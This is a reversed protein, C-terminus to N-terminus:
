APEFRVHEDPGAGSLLMFTTDAIGDNRFWRTRGPPNLIMDHQGLRQAVTDGGEAWGATLAGDLVFYADEVAREYGRVAIGRPLHIMEMRYAGPPAGTGGVYDLRAVAAEWTPPQEAHRLIHRAFERQRPDASTPDFPITRGPAAGFCHAREPDGDRPHCTYVPPKPSGSGVSISMLVPGVGDNRFGHPRGSRNLVMDYRGLRAEIVDAGFAWGVTLVGELVLFHEVVEHSHCAAYKGVPQHVLSLTFAGPKLTDPDDVKPSGGAGIYRMQARALEPFGANGPFADWDFSKEVHRGIAARMEQALDPLNRYAATTM